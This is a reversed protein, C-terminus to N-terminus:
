FGSALGIRAMLNLRREGGIFGHNQSREGGTEVVLRLGRSPLPKVWGGLVRLRVEEPRDDVKIFQWGADDPGTVSTVWQDGSRREIAASVSLESEDRGSWRARGIVGNGQPGLPIGLIRQESTMGSTFQVHEYFRLGTHQYEADFRWQGRSGFAPLTVGAVYGADEWLSSRVRRIDFDDAMADLYIEAGGTRWRVDVGALKNSFQLDRDQLFLVDILPLLDVVREGFSAAPAGRGATHTAVSVGLELRSSPLVTVKWGALKANPYNQHRGLDAVFLSGQVPGLRGLFGPLRAPRDSRLQVLDLAPANHSLFLGGSMGQGHLLPTRGVTLRANAAGVTVNLARFDIDARAAGGRADAGTLMPHIAFAVHKGAEGSAAVEMALTAGDAFRRGGRNDAIPNVTADIQTMGAGVIARAPSDLLTASLDAGDIRAGRADGPAGHEDRMAAILHEAAARREPMADLRALNARAQHALLQVHLRSFPGQGAVDDDVLGFGRLREIQRYVRSELPVSATVQAHLSARGCPAMGIVFGVVM